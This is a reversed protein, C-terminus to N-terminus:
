KGKKEIDEKATKFMNSVQTQADKVMDTYFSPKSVITFVEYGTTKMTEYAKRTYEGQAEVFGRLAKNLKEDKFFTDVFINKSTQVTDMTSKILTDLM